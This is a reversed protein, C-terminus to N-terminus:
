KKLKSGKEIAFLRDPLAVGFDFHYHTTSPRSSTDQIVSPYWFGQPSQKFDELHITQREKASKPDVPANAPLNFLEVQVVAYGKTPDLYYWEHGVQPEKTALSASRKILVCGPVASPRSDFEFGWGAVPSLDPYLL